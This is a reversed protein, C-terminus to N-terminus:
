EESELITSVSEKKDWSQSKKNYIPITRYMSQPRVDGTLIKYFTNFKLMAGHEQQFKEYTEKASHKVYFLRYQYVEEPTLYSKKYCTQKKYYEKNEPTYVEPMIDLWTRGQWVGQFNAWSTKDKFNQQYVLSPSEHQKYCKRIYEVDEKTLRARGNGEGQSCNAGGKQINHGDKQSNYKQIYQKEKTDLEQISCEELVEFSFQDVGFFNIYDDITLTRKQKHEQIRKEINNSQGIYVQGTQKNTIKYIGIM